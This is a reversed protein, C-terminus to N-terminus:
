AVRSCNTHMLALLTGQLGIPHIHVRSASPMATCERPKEAVMYGQCRCPRQVVPTLEGQHPRMYYRYVWRAEAPFAAGSCM